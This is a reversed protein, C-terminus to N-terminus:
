NFRALSYRVFRPGARACVNVSRRTTRHDGVCDADNFAHLDFLNGSFTIGQDTTGQLSISFHLARTYCALLFGHDEQCLRANTNVAFFLDSQQQTIFVTFYLLNGSDQSFSLQAHVEQKEDNLPNEEQRHPRENVNLPRSPQDKQPRLRADAYM